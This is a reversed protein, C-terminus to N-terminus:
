WIVAQLLEEDTTGKVVAQTSGAGQGNTSVYQHGLRAVLEVKASQRRKEREEDTESALMAQWAEVTALYAERETEKEEPSKKPRRGTSTSPMAESPPKPGTAKKKEVVM